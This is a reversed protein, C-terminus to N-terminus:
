ADDAAQVFPLVEDLERWLRLAEAMADAATAVADTEGTRVSVEFTPRGQANRGIKVTSHEGGTKTLHALLGRVLEAKTVTRGEGGAIRAGGNEMFARLEDRLLAVEHSADTTSM